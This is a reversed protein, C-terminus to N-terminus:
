SIISFHPYVILFLNDSRSVSAYHTTSAPRTGKNLVEVVDYDALRSVGPPVITYPVAGWDDDEM